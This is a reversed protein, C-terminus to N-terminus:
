LGDRRRWRNVRRPPEWRDMQLLAVIFAVWVTLVAFDMSGWWMPDNM